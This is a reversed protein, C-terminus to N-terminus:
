KARLAFICNFIMGCIRFDVGFDQNEGDAGAYRDLLDPDLANWYAETRCYETESDWQLLVNHLIAATKM